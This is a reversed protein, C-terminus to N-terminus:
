EVARYNKPIEFKIEKPVDVEIESFKLYMSADEKYSYPFTLRREYAMICGNPLKRYDSYEAKATRNMKDTIVTRDLQMTYANIYYQILMDDVNAKLIYWISDKKIEIQDSEPLIVNGYMLQQLDQFDPSISIVENLQSINGTYYEGLWRNLLVFKDKDVQLRAAEIGFKKVAIWVISDKKMRVQMSGSINEDPSKLETGAKGSFWTFDFNRQLLINILDTRSREPPPGQYLKKSCSGFFLLATISIIYLFKM